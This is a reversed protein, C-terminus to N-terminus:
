VTEKLWKIFEAWTHVNNAMAERITTQTIIVQMKDGLRNYNTLRPTTAGPCM